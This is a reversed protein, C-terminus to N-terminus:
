VNHQYKLSINVALEELGVLLSERVQDAVVVV